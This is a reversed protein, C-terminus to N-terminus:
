TSEKTIPVYILQIGAEALLRTALADKYEKVYYITKIQANIMMKACMSCPSHTCYMDADKISIGYAAAQIVANAEAHVAKCLEHREGSPINLEDRMCTKCHEIGRPAGNYGTSLIRKDRVIVAGVQGRLCTARTAVVKAISMFYNPWEPRM